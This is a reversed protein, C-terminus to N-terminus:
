RITLQRKRCTYTTLNVEELWKQDMEREHKKLEKIDIHPSAELIAQLNKAEQESLGKANPEDISRFYKINV